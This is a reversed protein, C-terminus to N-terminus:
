GSFIDLNLYHVVQNVMSQRNKYHIDVINKWYQLLPLIKIYTETLRSTILTIGM